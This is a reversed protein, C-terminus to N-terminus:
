PPPRYNVRDEPPVPRERRGPRAAMYARRYGAVYGERYGAAYDTRPGMWAGYGHEVARPAGKPWDSIGRGRRGDQHGSESGDRWGRDFGYRYAPTHGLRHDRGVVGPPAVPREHARALAPQIVLAASVLAIATTPAGM